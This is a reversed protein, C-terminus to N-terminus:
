YFFPLVFKKIKWRQSRDYELGTYSSIEICKDESKTILKSKQLKSIHNYKDKFNMNWTKLYTAM